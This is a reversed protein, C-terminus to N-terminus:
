LSFAQVFIALNLFIAILCWSCLNKLLITQAYLLYLSFIAAILTILFILLGSLPFNFVSSLISLVTVIAYYWMGLVENKIGLTTGYVSGVVQACNEGMLCFMKKKTKLFRLYQWHLFFANIFGIFSLFAIYM